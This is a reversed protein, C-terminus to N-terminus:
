WARPSCFYFFPACHSVAKPSGRTLSFIEIIERGPNMVTLALVQPNLCLHADNHSCGRIGQRGMDNNRDMEM